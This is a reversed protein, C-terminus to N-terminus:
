SKSEKAKISEKQLIEETEKDSFMSPRQLSHRKKSYRSGKPPMIPNNRRDYLTPLPKKKKLIKIYKSCKKLTKKLNM